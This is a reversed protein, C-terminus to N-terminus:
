ERSRAPARSRAPTSRVARSSRRRSSSRSSRRLPTTAAFSRTATRRAGALSSAALSHLGPSSRRMSCSRRASPSRALTAGHSRRGAEHLAARERREVGAHRRDRRRSVAGDAARCGVEGRARRPRRGRVADENAAGAAGVEAGKAAAREADRSGIVVDEGAAVLQQALALGFDGTGGVVAIRMGHVVGLAAEALRRRAAADSMLTRTVIPQVDGLGDLDDADAEDVVISDILGAYCAAVHRPSTGGALRTLMRDAPGKVARGGILPSVAVCPVRRRRSRMASRPCRSSRSSRCMRTARRSSCCSPPTSRTSCVRRPRPRRRRGRLAPARGRRPTRARRVMGPLRVRGGRDRDVHAAPRRDCAAPADDVGLAAVIRATVASLPEGARLAQTRVLHLGLDRDGLRVMGRRRAVPVSELAHWTEGSRGWGREEDNLGALAYLVSDLDPSVHM